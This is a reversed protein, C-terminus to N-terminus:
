PRPPPFVEGDPQSLMPDDALGHGTAARLLSGAADRVERWRVLAEPRVTATATAQGAAFGFRM